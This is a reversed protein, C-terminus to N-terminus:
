PLCPLTVLDLTGQGGGPTGGMGLGEAEEFTGSVTHCTSGNGHCVGCRDEVAGSDIEFDCGVNQLVHPPSGGPAPGRAALGRQCWGRPGALTPLLSSPAPLPPGVVATGESGM